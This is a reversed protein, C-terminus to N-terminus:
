CFRAPNRLFESRANFGLKQMAESITELFKEMLYISINVSIKM